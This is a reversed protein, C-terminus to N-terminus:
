PKIDRHMIGRRHCYAVARLVQEVIHAIVKENHVRAKSIVDFLEGIKCYEMVLLTQEENFIEILRCINPHDMQLMILVENSLGRIQDATLKEKKIIKVVRKVASKSVCM